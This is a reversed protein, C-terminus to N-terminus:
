SKTNKFKKKKRRKSFLKNHIYASIALMHCIGSYIKTAKKISNTQCYKDLKKTEHIDNRTVLWEVCSMMPM